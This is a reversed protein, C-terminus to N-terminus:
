RLILPLFLQIPAEFAGIDCTATGNEDGDVPRRFGRQDTLPCFANNGNDIAPSYTLLAMTQTLGGNNALPGLKPDPGFGPCTGDPPFNLNNGGDLVPGSCNGGSPSSAVIRNRIFTPPGGSKSIGGGSAASNSSLTGNTIDLFGVDYIGGGSVQATNAYFTTNSIILTGGNAIGAGGSITTNTAVTSNTLNVLGINNIAGGFTGASNTFFSSNMISLTGNNQIAGGTGAVNGSFKSNAINLTGSNNIGGGDPVCCGNAITLNFINVTIGSTVSIVRTANNGSITLLSTGTGSITLTDTITLAGLTDSLVITGTFAFYITDAGSGAPCGAVASDTNAALIAERLTCAPGSPNSDASSNVTIGAAQAPPPPPIFLVTTWVLAVISFALAIRARRQSNRQHKM